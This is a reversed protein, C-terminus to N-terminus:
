FTFSFGATLRQQGLRGKSSSNSIPALQFDTAVTSADAANVLSKSLFDPRRMFTTRYDLRFMWHDQVRYKFGGGMQGGGQFIGGGELPPANGFNYAAKFMGINNLGFQFLGHAKTFPADTLHILQMAPGTSVYPRFRSERPRFHFVTNYSFERTLLGVSQEELHQVVEEGVMDLGVLGLRFSGRQYRFGLEHSIWRTSNITVSGGIVWGSSIKNGATLAYQYHGGTHTNKGSVLLGESGVTSNSFLVGGSTIGLEVSPICWDSPGRRLTEKPRVGPDLFNGREGGVIPGRLSPFRLIPYIGEEDTTYSEGAIVIRREPLPNRDYGARSRFFKRTDFAANVGQWLFNGRVLDNRLTLLTQRGVRMAVNGRYPGPVDGIHEDARRPNRCDNLGIIAIDGDTVLTQGTANKPDAPIWPRSMTEAGTVCGTFLLDNLAKARENDIHGDILHIFSRHKASFGIGIDQTAAATYLPQGNWSEGVEYIRLHHRKSFTNLTKSLTLVPRQDGLLLVSMPAERYSQNEALSRLMKYRTAASVEASAVWGAATFAREISELSGAFMLNTLDSELHDLQTRTRFPVRRVLSRMGKREADDFTIKPPPQAHQDMVEVDEVLKIMLETGTPLRIEPESFRLMTAFAATSFALAIPDVAALSTLLGAARYGPTATSRIGCIRGQKDVGERANEIDAVKSHIEVVNGDPLLLHTFEIHITATERMLGIGVRHVANVVGKVLSGAPILIDGHVTLPAIVVGQISAGTQTSYSNLEQQLRVELIAGSPVVAARTIGSFLCLLGTLALAFSLHAGRVRETCYLKIFHLHILFCGTEPHIVNRSLDYL